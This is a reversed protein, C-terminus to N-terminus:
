PWYPTLMGATSAETTRAKAGNRALVTSAELVPLMYFRKHLDVWAAPETALVPGENAAARAAQADKRLRDLAPPDAALASMLGDRQRFFLVSQRDTPNAFAAIITHQWPVSDSAKLWAM